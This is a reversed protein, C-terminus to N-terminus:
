KKEISEVTNSLTSLDDKLGNVFDSMSQMSDKVVALQRDTYHHANRSEIEIKSEISKLQKDISNKNETLSDELTSFRMRQLDSMEKIQKKSSIFIYVALIFGAISLVWLMLIQKNLKENQTQLDNILEKSERQVEEISLRTKDLSDSTLAIKFNTSNLLDEVQKMQQALATIEKDKDGVTGRISGITGQLSKIQNRMSTSVSDYEKKLVYPSPGSPKRPAQVATPRPEPKRQALTILVTFCLISLITIKKM